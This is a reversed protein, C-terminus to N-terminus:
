IWYYCKITTVINSNLLDDGKQTDNLDLITSFRDPYFEPVTSQLRIGEQKSLSLLTDPLKEGDLTIGGLIISEGKSLYGDNIQQIFNEKKSM